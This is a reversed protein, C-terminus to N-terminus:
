WPTFSIKKSTGSSKTGYNLREPDSCVAFIGVIHSWISNQKDQFGLLQKILFVEVATTSSCKSSEVSIKYCRSLM